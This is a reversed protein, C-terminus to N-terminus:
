DSGGFTFKRSSVAMLQTETEWNNMSMKSYPMLFPHYFHCFKATIVSVQPPNYRGSTGSLFTTIVDHRTMTLEAHRRKQQRLFANLTALQVSLFIVVCGTPHLESLGRHMNEVQWSTRQWPSWKSQKQNPVEESRSM